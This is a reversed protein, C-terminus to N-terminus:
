PSFQRIRVQKGRDAAAPAAPEAPEAPAVFRPGREQPGGLGAPAGGFARHEPALDVLEPRVYLVPRLPDITDAM